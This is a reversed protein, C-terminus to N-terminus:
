RRPCCRNRKFRSQMALTGIGLLLLWLMGPEPVGVPATGFTVTQSVWENNGPNPIGYEFIANELNGNADPTGFLVFDDPGPQAMGDVGNVLGGIYLVPPGAPRGDLGDMAPTTLFAFGTDNLGYTHGNVTLSISNLPSPVWALSADQPQTPDFTLSFSGTVSDVPAPTCCFNTATFDYTTTITDGRAVSQDLALSLVISVLTLFSCFRPKM